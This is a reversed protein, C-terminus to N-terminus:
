KVLSAHTSVLRWQGKLRIFTDTFRHRGSHDQGHLTAKITYFGIVVAAEGYVRAKMDEVTLLSAKMVGSKLDNLEDAKTRAPLEGVILVYDDALIREVAAFDRVYGNCLDEELQFLAKETKSPKAEAGATTAGPGAAALLLLTTIFLCLHKLFSRSTTM